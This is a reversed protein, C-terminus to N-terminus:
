DIKISNSNLVAVYFRKEAFLVISSKNAQFTSM